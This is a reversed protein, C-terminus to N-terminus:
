VESYFSTSLIPGSHTTVLPGLRVLNNATIYTVLYTLLYSYKYPAIILFTVIRLFTGIRRFIHDDSDTLPTARVGWRLTISSCKYSSEAIRRVASHCERAQGVM